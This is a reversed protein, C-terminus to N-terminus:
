LKTKAAGRAQVTHLDDKERMKVATSPAVLSNLYCHLPVHRTHKAAFYSLGKEDRQGDRTEKKSCHVEEVM